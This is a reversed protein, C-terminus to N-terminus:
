GLEKGLAVSRKLAANFANAVIEPLQNKKFSSLAAETTGNPSTVNKMLQDIEVNSHQILKATGICTEIALQSAIDPDLGADIGSQALSQIFLMFYAPGSGSLATVANIDEENKVWIASGIAQLLEFSLTRKQENVRENAFLGSVGANVLSPTNPMVRVIAFKGSLWREIHSCSIGAAISILLPQHQNAVKSLPTLVSKMAQPKVALLVVECNIILDENSACSVVGHTNILKQCSGQNPDYILLNAGDIGVTTLGGIIASAMNGAGIFGIKKDIM